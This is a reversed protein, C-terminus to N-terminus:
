PYPSPPVRSRVDILIIAIVIIVVVAVVVIVPLVDVSPPTRHCRCLIIICCDFQSTFPQPPAHFISVIIIIIVVVIADDLPIVLLFPRPAFIYLVGFSVPPPILPMTIITHLISPPLPSVYQWDHPGEDNMATPIRRSLLCFTPRSPFCLLWSFLLSSSSPLPALLGNGDGKVLLLHNLQTGGGGYIM